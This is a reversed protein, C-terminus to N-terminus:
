DGFTSSAVASSAWARGDPGVIEVADIENWGPRRDTDLIVRVRAVKAGGADISLEFVGPRTLPDRGRWATRKAGRTDTVQVEVVAGASNVEFIRLKSARMPPNYALEIWQIGMDGSKSAWAKPDDVGADADPPGTAQMAHYAPTRAQEEKARELAARVDPDSEVALREDVFRKFEEARLDGLRGATAVRAEKDLTWMDNLLLVAGDVDAQDLRELLMGRATDDRAGALLRRLVANRDDGALDAITDYVDYPLNSWPVEAIYRELAPIASADATAALAELAPGAIEHPADKDLVGLLGDVVRGDGRFRESGLIGILAVRLALPQSPDAVLGVLRDVFLPAHADVALRFYESGAGGKEFSLLYRDLFTAPDAGGEGPEPLTFSARVADRLAALEGELDEVREQLERIRRTNAGVGPDARTESAQRRPTGRERVDDGRAAIYLAVCGFVGSALLAGLGVGRV